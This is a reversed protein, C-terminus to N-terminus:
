PRLSAARKPLTACWAPVPHRLGLAEREGDTLCRTVSARARAALGDRSQDVPWSLREGHATRAEIRRGEEDFRAGVIPDTAALDAVIRRTTLDVLMLRGSWDLSLARRAERDLTVARVTGGATPVKALVEAGALAILLVEGRETGAVVHATARDFAAATIPASVEIRAVVAGTAAQWIRLAGDSAITMVFRGDPSFKAKVVNGQHGGLISVLGGDSIRWLRATRDAAASLLLTGDPSFRLVTIAGEHGRLEHARRGTPVEHLRITEDEAGTAVRRGDPSFSTRVVRAVHGKLTALERGSAIDVLKGEDEGAGIALLRRDPSLSLSELGTGRAITNIRDLTEAPLEAFIALAPAMAAAKVDSAPQLALPLVAGEHRERLGRLLVESVELAPSAAALPSEMTDLAILLGTERNGQDIEKLAARMLSNADALRSEEPRPAAPTRAPLRVQEETTLRPPPPNKQYVRGRPVTPAPAKAIEHQPPATQQQDPPSQPAPARAIEQPTRPAEALRPLPLREAIPGLLGRTDPMNVEIAFLVSAAAAVLAFDGIWALRRRRNRTREEHGLQETTDRHARSRELFLKLPESLSQPHAACWREAEALAEGELLVANKLGQPARSWIQCAREFGILWAQFESDGAAM